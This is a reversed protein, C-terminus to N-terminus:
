RKRTNVILAGGIADPGFIAGAESPPVFLISEVSSPEIEPLEGSTRSGDLIFVRVKAGRYSLVSRMQGTRIALGPINISVILEDINRASPNRERLADGGLYNRRMLNLNFGYANIQNEMV